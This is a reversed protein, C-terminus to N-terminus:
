QACAWDGYEHVQGGMEFQGTPPFGAAMSSM